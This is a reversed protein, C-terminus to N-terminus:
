QILGFGRMIMIIGCVIMIGGTVRNIKTLIGITVVKKLQGAGIIKLADISFFTILICVLYVIMEQGSYNNKTSGFVMVGFWYFLVSPNIANMIFGKAFLRFNKKRSRAEVIDTGHVKRTTSKSLNYLGFLIFIIGGIFALVNQHKTFFPIEQTFSYTIIIYMVDSCFVGSDLILASKVGDRISTEVLLFFIPGILFSLVFGLFLGELIPDIM